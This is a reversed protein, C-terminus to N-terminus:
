IRNEVFLVNLIMLAVTTFIITRTKWQVALANEPDSRLLSEAGSPTSCQSIYVSYIIFLSYAAVVVLIMGVYKLQLPKNILYNRRKYDAM